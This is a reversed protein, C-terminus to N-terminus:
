RGFSGEKKKKKIKKKKTKTPPPEEGCYLYQIFDKILSRVCYVPTKEKKEKKVSDQRVM